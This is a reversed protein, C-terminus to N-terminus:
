VSSFEMDAVLGAHDSLGLDLAELDYWADRTVLPGCAFVHDFRKLWVKGNRRQRFSHDTTLTDGAPHIRRFADFWGYAGLGVLVSTEAALQRRMRDSNRPVITGDPKRRGGWGLISGDSREDQPSNLDGCLLRAHAATQGLTRAMREFTEIKTFSGDQKDSAGAPLHVNHVEILGDPTHVKCTLGREPWPIGLKDAEYEGLPWRSAILVGYRRRGHGGHAHTHAVTDTVNYRDKALWRRWGDVTSAKVEQLCIVDPAIAAVRTAQDALTNLRGNVNWTMVRM